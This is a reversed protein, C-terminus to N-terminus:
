KEIGGVGEKKSELLPIDDSHHQARGGLYNM